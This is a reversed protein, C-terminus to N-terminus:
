QQSGLFGGIAQVVQSDKKLTEWFLVKDKPIYMVDEPGHLEGGLKVLNLTPGPLTAGQQLPDAVRLYFIDKLVVYERNYKRLHGFYVQNNTLFVAQWSDKGGTPPFDWAPLVGFVGLIKWVVIVGIVVGVISWVKRRNM